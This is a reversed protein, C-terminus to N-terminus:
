ALRVHSEGDVRHLERRPFLPENLATYGDFLAFHPVAAADAKIEAIGVTMEEFDGRGAHPRNISRTRSARSKNSKVAMSQQQQESRRLSCSRNSRDGTPPLHEGYDTGCDIVQSRPKTVPHVPQKVCQRPLGRGVPGSPSAGPRDRRLALGIWVTRKMAGSGKVARAAADRGVGALTLRQM